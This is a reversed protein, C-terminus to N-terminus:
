APADPWDIDPASSTDVAELADLYDLWLNYQALEDGKLRGLAVKGPWQRNNIYDNARDIYAQKQYKAETILEEKNKEPEPPATFDTGNFYWGIGPFPSIDSINVVTITDAGSWEAKGDWLVVNSVVGDKIIAYQM